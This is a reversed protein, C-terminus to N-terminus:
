LLSQSSLKGIPVHVVVDHETTTRADMAFTVSTTLAQDRVQFKLDYISSDILITGEEGYFRLFREKEDIPLTRPQDVSVFEEETIVRLDRFLYLPYIIPLHNHFVLM